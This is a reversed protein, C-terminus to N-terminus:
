PEIDFGVNVKMAVEVPVCNLLTSTFRWGRVADMAAAALDPNAAGRPTVDIVFGDPGIRADLVVSGTIGAQQLHLPYVPRVDKIKMPPKINGGSSSAVCEGRPYSSASKELPITPTQTASRSGKVSITEELTGLQLTLNREVNRGAVTLDGTLTTFGPYQAKLRYEGPPLGVFLFRGEADSRVEYKAQSQVNELVLTVKPVGTNMPDLISGSFTALSQASVGFGGILVTFGVLATTLAVRASRTAPKRNLGTNLMASVRRELSCPQAMAPAASGRCLGDYRTRARRALELLHTAYDSAEVGLSLVADDCAQESERRLRSAAIWVLPNFWYVSRLVEAVMQTAWDGRRIHALEHALVIRIREEPWHAADCPLLIKPHVVGWTVPMAPHPSALLVVPRRLGHPRRMDNALAFWPGESLRTSRAALWRLRGAGVLLMVLSFGSGLLWITQLTGNFSWVGVRDTVPPLGESTRPIAAQRDLGVIAEVPSTDFRVIAPAVGADWGPVLSELFPAVAACAIAAALVWHRIAASQGRLGRALALGALVVLSVKIM